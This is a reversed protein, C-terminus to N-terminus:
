LNIDALHRVDTHQGDGAFRGGASGAGRRGIIEAEEKRVKPLPQQRLCQYLATETWLFIWIPQDDVYFINRKEAM